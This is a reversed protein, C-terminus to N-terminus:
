DLPAGNGRGCHRLGNLCHNVLRTLARENWANFFDAHGSYQGMSALEVDAGGSTPYRYILSIAPVAVPHDAPCARRVPYAMHSKHDSSDLNVGDWCSPFNVHLRLDSGRMSPCMPVASSPPVGAEVGCNWYTVRLSQPSMAHSDGAIMKLGAPFPIVHDRTHRRYYITASLPALPKGAVLLTPMWYAATDNPRQCTTSGARLSPLTSFADTTTNGVFSHDHSLGPHGPYVIPDDTNRHSFRCVSVFNVRDAARIARANGASGASAAVVGVLGAALLGACSATVLLRGRRLM